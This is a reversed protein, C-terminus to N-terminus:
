LTEEVFQEEDSTYQYLLKCNYLVSKIEQSTPEPALALSALPARGSRATPKKRALFAAGLSTGANGAVPQVYVNRFSSRPELARVLLVNQFVGGALCLSDAGTTERFHEAIKLVM